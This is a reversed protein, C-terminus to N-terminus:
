ASCTPAPDRQLRRAEFSREPHDEAPWVAEVHHEAGSRRQMAPQAVGCRGPKMRPSTPRLARQRAIHAQHDFQPSVLVESGTSLRDGTVVHVVDSTTGTWELPAPALAGRVEANREEHVAHPQPLLM